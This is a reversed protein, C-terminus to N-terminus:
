SAKSSELIFPNYTVLNESLIKFGQYMPGDKDGHERKSTTLKTTMRRCFATGQWTLTAYWRLSGILSEYKKMISGSCYIFILSYITVEKKVFPVRVTMDTSDYILGCIKMVWSLGMRKAVSEEIGCLTLFEFFKNMLFTERSRDSYKTSSIAGCHDDTYVEHYIQENLAYVTTDM